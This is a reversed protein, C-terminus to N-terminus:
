EVWGKCKLYLLKCFAGSVVAGDAQSIQYQVIFCIYIVLIVFIVLLRFFIGYMFADFSFVDNHNFFDTLKYLDFFSFMNESNM